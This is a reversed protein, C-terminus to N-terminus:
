HMDTPRTHTCIHINLAWYFLFTLRSWLQPGVSQCRWGKVWVAQTVCVQTIFRSTQCMMVLRNALLGQCSHVWSSTNAQESVMLCKFTHAEGQCTSSCKIETEGWSSLNMLSENSLSVFLSLYRSLYLFICTLFLFISCTSALLPALM